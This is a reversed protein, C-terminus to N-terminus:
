RQPRVGEGVFIGHQLNRGISLRLPMTRRGHATLWVPPMSEVREFKGEIKSISQRASWRDKVIVADRGRLAADDTSLLRAIPNDSLCVVPISDKLVFQLRFCFGYTGAIVFHRKSDLMGNAALASRFDDWDTLDAAIQDRGDTSPVVAQLWGTLMHTLFGVMLAGTAVIAADITWRCVRPFRDYIAVALKGALPLTFLYAPALWHVGGVGQDGFLDLILFFALPVVALMALYWQWEVRPGDRLAGALAAVCLLWNAPGFVVILMGFHTLTRKLHLEDTLTARDFQFTVVIFDHEVMWVIVPSFVALAALAAVYPGPTFFLRRHRPVTLAFLALGPLVLVASLKSLLAFGFFLGAILWDWWATRDGQQLLARAMFLAAGTLAFTLPGNTLAITGIFGFYLPSLSIILVAFLGSRADFVLATLRYLFWNQAAFLLLTPLRVLLYHESGAAHVMGAILWMTAPPHDYSSLALRRAAVVMYAEDVSLGMVSALALRMALSVSIVIVVARAPSIRDALAAIMSSNAKAAAGRPVSIEAHL